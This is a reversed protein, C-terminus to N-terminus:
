KASRAAKAKGGYIFKPKVTVLLAPIVTLSLLSTIIMAVAVLIGVDAMMQFNSFALVAFGAGVSIANTIIAKGSSRFARHMVTREDDGEKRARYEFTFADMFHITYDIGIGVILSAIIATAINLKIGLAGMVAFNCFIAILIPVGCILGASLSRNSLAIIVFVMLISMAITILQSETMLDTLAVDLMSGGGLTFRVTDPFADKAYATIADVVEMTDNRGTTRLQVTSQIATPEMPDNSYDTNGGSLLALYNAVIGELEADSTKGYKAPDRPIEYYALGDYNTQRMLSRILDKANMDTRGGSATDLMTLLEGTTLSAALLAANGATEDTTGAGSAAATFEEAGNDDFGFGLTDTDDGTFGFGFSDESEGGFGFSDDSQPAAAPGLGLPSEDANFVQNIRKIMDPFGVIKGVMPNREMFTTALDDMAGLAKPDLLAEPTDAELAISMMKSGGFKERIFRDSRAIDTNEKFFEVTVNDIILKTSGWVSLGAIIVTFVLVLRRRQAISLFIGAITTESKTSQTGSTKNKKVKEPLPGRILYCAPILTVSLVFAAMVGVSSIVGFERIPVIPTFCFSLFGALTTLAALFV